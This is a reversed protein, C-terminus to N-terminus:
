LQPLRSLHKVDARNLKELLELQPGGFGKLDALRELRYELSVDNQDIPMAFARSSAVILFVLATLAPGGERKASRLAPLLRRLMAARLALAAGDYSDLFEAPTKRIRVDTVYFRRM